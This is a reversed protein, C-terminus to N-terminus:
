TASAPLLRIRATTACGFPAVDATAPPAPAPAALPSPEAAVKEPGVPRASSANFRMRKTDSVPLLATRWIASAVPTTVASAPPPAAPWASPTPLLAIKEDSAPATYSGVACSSQTASLPLALTSRLITGDVAVTSVNPVEKWPASCSAVPVLPAKKRPGDATDCSVPPPRTTESEVFLTSRKMAEPAVPGVVVHTPPPAAVGPDPPYEDPAAYWDYM